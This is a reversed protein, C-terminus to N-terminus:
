RRGAGGGGYDLTSIGEDHENQQVRRTAGKRQPNPVDDRGPAIKGTVEGYRTRRRARHIPLPFVIGKVDM